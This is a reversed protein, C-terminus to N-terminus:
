CCKYIHKCQKSMGVNTLPQNVVSMVASSGKTEVEVVNTFINCQKSRGFKTLPQDVVTRVASSGM